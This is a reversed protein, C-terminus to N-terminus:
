CGGLHAVALVAAAVAATEVRMISNGLAVPCFGRAVALAIEADSFGGEPGIAVTIPPAPARSALRESLRESKGDRRPHLILGTGRVAFREVAEEFPCVPDVILPAERGCQRMAEGAIKDWRKVREASPRAVSRASRVPAVREIGIESAKRVVGDMLNGKPVVVVLIVPWISTTEELRQEVHLVARNKEVVALRALYGVGGSGRLEVLDGARHRRVRTLYHFEDGRIEVEDLVALTQDILLRTM